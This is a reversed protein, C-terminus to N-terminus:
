ASAHEAEALLQNFLNVLEPPAETGRRQRYFRIFLEDPQLGSREEAKPGQGASEPLKPPTVDVANPLYDRVQQALAPVFEDLEVTVRLYADGHQGAERPLDAFRVSLNKLARGGTIPVSRVDPPLGPRLEVINVSRAQEAEGFDLQLLSGSYHTKSPAAMQQPKHVHGLAIYQADDPLAAAKVAFNQGIQIPREGGGEGIIAGDILMHGVLVNVTQATPKAWLARIAQEMKHAYQQISPAPDGASLTEFEVAFREPVWPLAVIRGSEKGDRSPIHLLADETSSPVSGWSHIGAFRLVGRLADMHKPHDHNGAILVVQTGSRLVRELTEYLLKEAEPPPSFTDFIDGAVILIDVAEAAAIDAVEGLVKEFEDQRSLGRIQRGLHWDGTHLIRM